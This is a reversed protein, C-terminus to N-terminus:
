TWTNHDGGRGRQRRRHQRGQGQGYASVLPQNYCGLTPVRQPHEQKFTLTTKEM